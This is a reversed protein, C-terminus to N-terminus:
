LLLMAFTPQQTSDHGSAAGSTFDNITSANNHHVLKYSNSSVTTCGRTSVTSGGVIITVANNSQEGTTPLM